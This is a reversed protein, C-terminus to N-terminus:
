SRPVGSTTTHYLQNSQLRRCCPSGILLRMQVGCSLERKGGWVPGCSVETAPVSCASGIAICRSIIGDAHCSAASSTRYSMATNVGEEKFDISSKSLAVRRAM